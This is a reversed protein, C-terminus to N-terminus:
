DGSYEESELIQLPSALKDYVKYIENSVDEISGDIESLYYKTNEVDYKKSYVEIANLFYPSHTNILIHTSLYKNIIVILEAFKLQWEPHLHIEPEDLILVGNNLLTEKSILLKMMIFNKLGEAVNRVSLSKDTGVPRYEYKNSEKSIYIDGPCIENLIKKFYNNNIINRIVHNESTEKIINELHGTHNVSPRRKSKPGYEDAVINEILKFDDIYIAESKLDINNEIKKVKNDKIIFRSIKNTNSSKDNITLQIIGEEDNYINNIQNDFEANLRRNIIETLIDDDGVSISAVFRELILEKLSDRDLYKDLINKISKEKSDSIAISKKINEINEDSVDGVVKLIDMIYDFDYKREEAIQTSTNSLGNFISFLSKAITSKGTSNTGCILTISSIDIEAEKIKGINKVNLIM